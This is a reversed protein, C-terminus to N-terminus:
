KIRMPVIYINIIGMKYILFLLCLSILGDAVPMCSILMNALMQVHTGRSEFRTWANEVISRTYKIFSLVTYGEALLQLM